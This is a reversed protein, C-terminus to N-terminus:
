LWLILWFFGGAVRVHSPTPTTPMGPLHEVVLVDKQTCDRCIVAVSIRVTQAGAKIRTAALGAVKSTSRAVAGAQVPQWVSQGCETDVRLPRSPSASASICLVGRAHMAQRVPAAACKKCSKERSSKGAHM